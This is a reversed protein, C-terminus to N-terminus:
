GHLLNAFSEERESGLHQGPAKIFKISDPMGSHWSKHPVANGLCWPSAAHGFRVTPAM